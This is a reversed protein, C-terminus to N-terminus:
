NHQNTFSEQHTTTPPRATVPSITGAALRQRYYAIHAEIHEEPWHAKRLSAKVEEITAGASHKKNIFDIVRQNISVPKQLVPKQAMQTAPSVASSVPGANNTSSAPPTSPLPSSPETTHAGSFNNFSNTAGANDGGHGIHSFLDSLSQHKVLTFFAILGGVLIIVIIAYLSFGSFVDKLSLGSPSETEVDQVGTQNQTINVVEPSGIDGVILVDELGANSLRSQYVRSANLYEADSLSWSDGGKYLVKIANSSLNYEQLWSKDVSFTVFLEEFTTDNYSDDFSAREYVIYRDSLFADEEPLSVNDSFTISSKETFYREPLLGHFRKFHVLTNSLALSAINNEYEWTGNLTIHLSDGNEEDEETGNDTTNTENSGTSIPIDFNTSSSHGGSSRPRPTDCVSGDVTGDCDNDLGDCIETSPFVAGVCTSSWSYNVCTLTGFSCAGVDTSPGCTTTENLECACGEDVTGDCDNDVGDCVEETPLVAGVCTDSWAYDVCSLTGFSCVGEDTSPGCTTTEDLQCACGEDVTGDCDNDAGDCTTENSEYTAISSYNNSWGGAGTCTQVAGVCVGTQLLTLPPTLGNDATGDCDNDLGDCLTEDAEYTAIGAYHDIWGVFGGCTKVSGACVGSQLTNLPPTLDEDVQGDCDNDIGDCIEVPGDDTVGNCDNDIGDCVEPSAGFLPNCATTTVWTDVPCTQIGFNNTCAGEGCSIINELDENTSGDCDNDLGDCIETSPLVAGVCTDSWAYDVCSLTGFSCVGTENAPGCTTTEGPQCACGEDLQGDCDNNLSDCTTEPSEYYPIGSYDSVWGGAGTCTQVAGACVGAQLFTLPANLNDDIYSNCDNDLGDCIEVGGNTLICPQVSPVDPARPPDAFVALLTSLLILLVVVLRYRM